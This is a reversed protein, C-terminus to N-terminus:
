FNKTLEIGITRPTNTYKLTPTATAAVLFVDGHVDFANNLFLALEVGSKSSTAGLRFNTIDYSHQIRYTPATPRLETASKGHYSWDGRVWATWEPLASLGREYQVSFDGTWRPIRPLQDGKRGPAQVTANV